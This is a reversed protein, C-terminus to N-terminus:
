ASTNGAIAPKYKNLFEPSTFVATRRENHMRVNALYESEDVFSVLVALSDVVWFLIFCCLFFIATGFSSLAYSWLAVHRKIHNTPNAATIGQATSSLRANLNQLLAIESAHSQLINNLDARKQKYEFEIQEYMRNRKDAQNPKGTVGEGLREKEMQNSIRSLASSETLYDQYWMKKEIETIQNKIPTTAERLQTDSALLYSDIDSKFVYDLPIASFMYGTTLAIMIRVLKARRSKGATVISVDLIFITVAVLAIPISLLYWNIADATPHSQIILLALAFVCWLVPIFVSAAKIFRLTKGHMSTQSFAFIDTGIAILPARLFPNGWAYAAVEDVRHRTRAAATALFSAFPRIALLYLLAVGLLIALWFGPDLRSM